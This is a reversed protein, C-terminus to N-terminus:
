AAKPEIPKGGWVAKITDLFAFVSPPQLADVLTVVGIVREFPEPLQAVTIDDPIPEAALKAMITAGLGRRVMSVITSDERVDYAFNISQAHRTLYQEINYRCGDGPPTQILPYKFLQEWTLQADMPKAAPPLLVVYEDRLLEWAEFDASTPLYTFGIDIRGQRLYDEVLHYHSFEDITVSIGPYQQRFREIVAPLIHTAVSRFGGLRVQGSQLGKALQAQQCIKELRDMVQEAEATIAEGVPTLVAGQRGRNLLIVGLETELTAIAHSVASQSLELQLAADSFTGTKAIAVLARLQSLKLRNPNSEAM